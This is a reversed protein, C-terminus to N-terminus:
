SASPKMFQFYGFGLALLLYLAVNIWGLANAVGGLQGLLAVIFGIADGIFVALVIARLAESEAANRAFWLLLGLLILAAGFLRTMLIGGPGLTVDYFSLLPRPILVMGIGLALCIIAKIVMLNSLKM